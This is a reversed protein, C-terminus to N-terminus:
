NVDASTGPDTPAQMMGQDVRNDNYTFLKQATVMVSMPITGTMGLEKAFAASNFKCYSTSGSDYCFSGLRLYTKDPFTSTEAVSSM